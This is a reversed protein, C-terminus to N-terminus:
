LSNEMLILAAWFPAGVYKKKKEEDQQILHNFWINECAV